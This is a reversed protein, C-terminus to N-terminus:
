VATTRSKLKLFQQYVDRRKKLVASYKEDYALEGNAFKIEVGIDVMFDLFDDFEHYNRSIRAADKAIVVGIIGAEADTQLQRIAPRDLNSGSYGNDSYVAINGYRNEEAYQRLLLEQNAISMDCAQATRCYLATVLEDDQSPENAFRAYLAAKPKSNATSETTNMM